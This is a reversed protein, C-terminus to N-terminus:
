LDFRARHADNERFPLGVRGPLPSQGWVPDSLLDRLDTGMGRWGATGPSRGPPFVSRHLAPSHFCDTPVAVPKLEPKDSTSSLETGRPTDSRVM